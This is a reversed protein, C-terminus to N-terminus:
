EKTKSEMAKSSKLTSQLITEIDDELGSVEKLMGEVVGDFASQPVPVKDETLLLQKAKGGQVQSIFEGEIHEILHMLVSRRHKASNLSEQLESFTSM